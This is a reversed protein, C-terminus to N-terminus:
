RARQALRIMLKTYELKALLVSLENRLATWAAARDELSMPLLPPSPPQNPNM